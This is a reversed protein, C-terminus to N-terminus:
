VSSSVGARVANPIVDPGSNNNEIFRKAAELFEEDEVIPVKDPNTHVVSISTYCVDESSLTNVINQLLKHSPIRPFCKDKLSSTM